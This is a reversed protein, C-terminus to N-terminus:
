GNGAITAPFISGEGAVGGALLLLKSLRAQEVSSRDIAADDQLLSQLLLEGDRWEETDDGLCMKLARMTPADTVTSTNNLHYTYAGILAPLLVRYMGTLREITLETTMGGAMTDLLEVLEDNPPVTLRDQKLEGLEPLRKHWLDAHFAHNYCHSGVQMKVELEPCMAVWGGLMEFIRMEIWKYHGVRRATEEVSFASPFERKAWPLVKATRDTTSSADM